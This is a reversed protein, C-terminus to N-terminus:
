HLYALLDEKTCPVSRMTLTETSVTTLFSRIPLQNLLKYTYEAAIIGMMDNVLLGQAGSEIDAACSTTTPALAAVTAPAPELLSPFVVSANPLYRFNNMQIYHQAMKLDGVNGITVQGSFEHNGSDIWVAGDVKALEIRALHNDVAGCLLINRRYNTAHVEAKFPENHWTIDLGMALNFRKALTEAKYTGIDAATFMQRGLNSESVVDPDVFRIQPIHQRRRRLDYVIRCISRAWQSGTGGLGALVIETLRIDPNFSPTTM